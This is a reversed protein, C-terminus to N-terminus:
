HLMQWTPPSIQLSLFTMWPGLSTNCTVGKMMLAALSLCLSRCQALRLWLYDAKVEFQSEKKKQIIYNKKRKLFQIMVKSNLAKWYLALAPFTQLQSPASASSCAPRLLQPQAMGPLTPPWPASLHINTCLGPYGLDSQLPASLQQWIQERSEAAHHGTRVSTHSLMWKTPKPTVLLIHWTNQSLIINTQCFTHPKREFQAREAWHKQARHICM